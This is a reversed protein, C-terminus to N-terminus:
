LPKFFTDLSNESESVGNIYSLATGGYISHDMGQLENIDATRM